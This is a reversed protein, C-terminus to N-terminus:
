DDDGIMSNRFTGYVIILNRQIDLLEKDMENYQEKTIREEDRAKRLVRRMKGIRWRAIGSNNSMFFKSSGIISFILNIRGIIYLIAYLSLCIGVGWVLTIGVYMYLDNM